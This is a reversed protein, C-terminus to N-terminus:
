YYHWTKPCEGSSSGLKPRDNSRGKRKLSKEMKTGATRESMFLEPDSNKVTLHCSWREVQHETSRCSTLEVLERERNSPMEDLTGRKSSQTDRVKWTGPVNQFSERGGV